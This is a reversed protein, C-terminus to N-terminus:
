NVKSVKIEDENEPLLEAVLRMEKVSNATNRLCEVFKPGKRLMLGTALVDTLILQALRSCTPMYIQTEPAINMSLVLNSEKALPSNKPTISIVTANQSRATKAVEIISRTRGSQSVLIFVDDIGSSAASMLMIVSDEFYNCPINFTIFKNMMDHAVAASNGLGCFTIRRACSLSDVCRQIIKTDLSKRAEALTAISAEFIKKTYIETSDNENVEFNGVPNKTLSQAIHLKFDPFGTTKLKQCFRHVSPESVEALKALSAISTHIIKQPEAIVKEAIKKESRSFNPMNEAIMEIFNM